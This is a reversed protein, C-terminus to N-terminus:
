SAARVLQWNGRGANKVAYLAEDAHRLLHDASTTHTEGWAAGVSASIHITDGGVVYPMELVKVIRAAAAGTQRESGGVLLVAFEDGGLRCVKDSSRVALAIRQAAEILVADGAAHGFSDNVPKFRDLDVVLIGFSRAECERESVSMAEDLGRRNLLGTLLDTLAQRHFLDERAIRHSIDVIESVVRLPRGDDDRVLSVSLRAHITAGDRHIFRKELQYGDTGGNVMENFAVYDAEVDDPHTIRKFDLGTLESVNYGLMQGLAPNVRACTGDLNAVVKGIVANVFSADFTRQSSRLERELRYRDTLDVTLTVIGVVHGQDDRDPCYSVKFYRTEGRVEREFEHEVLSGALAERMKLQTILRADPGIVDWVHKGIISEPDSGQWPREVHNVFRFRLDRDLYAILSPLASLAGIARDFM